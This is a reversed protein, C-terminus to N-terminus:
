LSHSFHNACKKDKTHQNVAILYIFGVLATPKAMPEGSGKGSFRFPSWVPSHILAGAIWVEFSNFEM